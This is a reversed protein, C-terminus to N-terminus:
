FKVDSTAHMDSRLEAFSPAAAWVVFTDCKPYMGNTSQKSDLIGMAFPWGVLTQASKIAESGLM